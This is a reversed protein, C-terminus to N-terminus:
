GPSGGPIHEHWMRHANGRKRMEALRRLSNPKEDLLPAAKWRPLPLRPFAHQRKENRSISHGRTLVKKGHFPFRLLTLMGLPGVWARNSQEGSQRRPCPALGPTKRAVSSQSWTDPHPNQWRQVLHSRHAGSHRRLVESLDSRRNSQRSWYRPTTGATGGLWHPATEGPPWAM